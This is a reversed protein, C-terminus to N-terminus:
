FNDVVPLNILKKNNDNMAVSDGCAFKPATGDIFWEKKGGCLALQVLGQPASWPKSPTDKLLKTMISNWIPSAGTVGSAVRSMPSNDNNGVWVAVLYDQNFGVTLNDRLDNSTGTKVSVEPHGPIVLASNPGFAPTRASNDSLIDILQFAVRPDVVQESSCDSHICIPQIRKGHMDYIATTPTLAVRTGMKAITLYASSLDLLTVGGGGLTLSLGYKNQENWTTIGMKRGMEIMNGVGYSALVRVAPINRSQALAQRLPMKGHYTGDYNQPTYPPSGALKFSVPSDDLVSAPTYGHSLAYTYNILKISSGPPRISTTTNVNGGHSFDNYDRSGVMALIEGTPVSLVLVGANTVHLKALKTLEANVANQAIEQIAPDLSTKVTLGGHFVVRSGFRNMLLERMYMVFHPATTFLPEPHFAIAESQSSTLENQDIFGLAKMQTLVADRRLKLTTDEPDKSASPNQPLSALFAAESLTVNKISKGFYEHAAEEIGYATGGYSVRNLYLELIQDKTYQQEVRLALVMERLKRDITREPTLYVNKVLQQTLTSAGTLNGGRVWTIVARILAKVSVGKHVYFDHDEAAITAQRVILPIDTLPVPTRNIDDYFKYLLKGNRDYLKTSADNKYIQLTSINPLESFFLTVDQYLMTIGLFFILLPFVLLSFKAVPGKFKIQKFLRRGSSKRILSFFSILQVILFFLIKYLPKGIITLATPLFQFVPSTQAKKKM